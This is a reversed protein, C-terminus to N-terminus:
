MGVNKSYVDNYYKVINFPEKNESALDSPKKEADAKSVCILRPKDLKIRKWEKTAAIEVREKSIFWGADRAVGRVTAPKELRDNRKGEYVGLRIIEVLDYDSILYNVKPNEERLTELVNAVLKMGDSYMERIMDDKAQTKPADAGKAVYDKYDLAWRYIKELGQEAELWGHFMDWYEKPKKEERVKPILWRRDEQAIKLAKMSNSCAFAHIWNDIHYDAMYKKKVTVNHDTIITKLKNYAKSSHGAYIEHVVALRRHAIWYNYDSDVIEDEGPFSTNDIGVLRALIKEGLTGKGVGQTESVLLMGYHMKVAPKAILTAIWRYAEKRDKEVEILHEMFDLWPQIDKKTMKEVPEIFPPRYSNIFQGGDRGTYIGPKRSPDYNIAYGKGGFDAQLYNSTERVNSFPRVEIDFDKKTYIKSPFDKHIFAEPAVINYWEEAFHRKLVTFAKEGKQTPQIVETAFTAACHFLKFKPGIYLGAANYFEEPLPDAIDWSVEFRSDFVAGKLRAGFNKSVWPLMSKGPHDNDCVYITDESKRAKLDDYDARNVALAGGVIGWHEYKSLEPYWPHDKPLHQAASAAKAGEHVMIPAGERPTRPKYFPIKGEPQMQRWIGDDWFSWPLYGKPETREQVFIILGDANHFLYLKSLNNLLKIGNTNRAPCSKPLNGDVWDKKIAEAEKDTPMYDLPATVSGDANIKIYAKEFYYKGKFEKVQYSRFNIESAGIREIYDKVSQPVGKSTAPAKSKKAM